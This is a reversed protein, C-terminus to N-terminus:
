LILHPRLRCAIWSNRSQILRDTLRCWTLYIAAVQHTPTNRSRSRSNPFVPSPHVQQWMYYYHRSGRTVQGGLENSSVNGM